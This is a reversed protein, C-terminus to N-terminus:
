CGVCMCVCEYQICPRWLITLWCTKRPSWVFKVANHKRFTLVFIDRAHFLRLTESRNQRTSQTFAHERLTGSVSLLSASMIKAGWHPSRLGLVRCTNQCAKILCRQRTAPLLASVVPIYDMQRAMELDCLAWGTPHSNLATLRYSHSNVQILRLLLTLATGFSSPNVNLFFSFFLFSFPLFTFFPVYGVVNRFISPETCGNLTSQCTCKPYKRM